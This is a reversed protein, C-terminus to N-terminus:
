TRDGQKSKNSNKLKLKSELLREVADRILDSFDKYKGEKITQQMRERLERSIRVGIRTNM